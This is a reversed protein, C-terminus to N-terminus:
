LVGLDINSGTFIKLGMLTDFDEDIKEKNWERNRVKKPEPIIEYVGAPLTIGLNTSRKWYYEEPSSIAMKTKTDVLTFKLNFGQKNYNKGSYRPDPQQLVIKLDNQIDKLEIIFKQNTKSEDTYKIWHSHVRWQERYFECKDIAQYHKLFSDFDMFFSGDNEFSYNLQALYEPKWEQGGDKWAGKWEHQGWPNRIELLRNGDLEVARIISYAHGGVLGLKKDGRQPFHACGFAVDSKPKSLEKWFKETDKIQQGWYSTSIGGSLDELAEGPWGGDISEYDGNLKAYAKELLPVWTENKDKSKLLIKALNSAGFDEDRAVCTSEILGPVDAGAALAALFWCDGISGHEDGNIFFQHDPLFETIRKTSAFAVKEGDVKKDGRKYLAHFPDNGIDFEPDTFKKNQQRCIFSIQLLRKQTAKIANERAVKSIINTPSKDTLAVLRGYVDERRAQKVASIPATHWFHLDKFRINQFCDLLENSNELVQSPTPFDIKTFNKITHIACPNAFNSTISPKIEEVFLNVLQNELEPMIDHEYDTTKKCLCRQDDGYLGINFRGFHPGLNLGGYPGWKGVFKSLKANGLQGDGFSFIFSKEGNLYENRSHWSQPNFGGIIQGSGKVKIVSITAGKNDCLRHFDAPTFGDRSGRLLLKFDNELQDEFLTDEDKGQIWDDLQKINHSQLLKSDINIRSCRLPQADVSEQHSGPVLYHHLLDEYLTGPLIRAFPKVKHYFNVSSINFFRILPLLGKISEKFANFGEDTWNLVEKMQINTDLKAVGWEVIKEWIKSEEINLDDRTLMSSLANESLSTFDQSNFVIAPNNAAIDTCFKQLKKFSAHMFSTKQLTAFNEKLDKAHHKILYDELSDIFNELILEDATVLLELITPVGYKDLSIVGNYIYRLIIEFIEPSINPKAFIIANDERKIWNGSLAVTFYPSRAALIQSHAHFTRIDPAEGVIIRVDSFKRTNLLNGFDNSLANFHQQSSMPLISIKSHSKKEVYLPVEILPGM